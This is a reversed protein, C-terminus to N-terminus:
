GTRSWKTEDEGPGDEGDVEDATRTRGAGAGLGGRVAEGEEAGLVTVGEPMRFEGNEDMFDQMNESTIWGTAGPATEDFAAEDGEEPPDPNLEQCDSIAQFLAQTPTQSSHGNTQDESEIQPEAATISTPIIRLQIFVLDEDPTNSDSLNLGLLVANGDQAHVTIAQYPLQVGISKPQSFLTLQRSTVWVDINAISLQGDKDPTADIDQLAALEPQSNLDERSIKVSASPSHLHLVPKAGFFSVPTAEQHEHLPTYDAATPAVEISELAM